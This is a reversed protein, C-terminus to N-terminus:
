KLLTTEVTPKVWRYHGDGDLVQVTRISVKKGKISLVAFSASGDDDPWANNVQYIRHGKYRQVSAEHTHGVMFAALNYRDLLAM